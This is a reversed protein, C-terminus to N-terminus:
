SAVRPPIRQECPVGVQCFGCGYGEFHYKERVYERTVKNVYEACLVKDHGAATIAGAPCRKICAGCVGSAVHLCYEQHHTYPRPSPPLSLRAVLAGTRMAKGVPTILGDCLAFTGLGAAYAAHRESWSSAAGYRESVEMRWEPLLSPAVARIGQGALADVMHQRLARNVEEGFIRARAWREAPFHTEKRHDRLTAAAHPLVWSVVMLDAPSADDDPQGLRYAEHPTWHFPGVHEKFTQWVPDAGTAYGLIARGYAPEPGTPMCLDNASGQLFGTVTDELWRTVDTTSEFNM